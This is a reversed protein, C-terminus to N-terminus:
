KSIFMQTFMKGYQGGDKIGIGIYTYEGLINAKHGPSNMLADHAQQVNQNGAINEAAKLYKIGFSKMMDFPSGYTPSNHSFYNSDIMDQAKNRAVKTLEIDIKIAQLGNQTRAENVLRLMEQEDATLENANNEANEEPTNAEDAKNGETDTPPPASPLTQNPITAKEGDEKIVPECSNEPVFGISNDELKVAYWDEVKNVVDLTNNKNTTQLVDTENSCGSRINAEDATIQVREVDGTEYVSSEVGKIPADSCSVSIIVVLLLSLIMNLKKIM